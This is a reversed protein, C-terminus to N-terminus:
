QRPNEVLKIEKRTLGYLKYILKNIDTELKAIEGDIKDINKSLM